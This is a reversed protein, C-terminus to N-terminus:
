PKLCPSPILLLNGQADVLGPGTEENGYYKAYKLGSERRVLNEFHVARIELVQTQPYRNPAWVMRQDLLGRIGDYAHYMEHALSVYAPVPRRVGDVEFRTAAAGPDWIIHGGIGIQRFNTSAPIEASRRGTVFISLATAMPLGSQMRGDDNASFSMWGGYKIVIPFRSKELHRLLTRASPLGELKKVAKDFHKYFRNDLREYPSGDLQYYAGERYVIQENSEYAQIRLSDKKENIIFAEPLVEFEKQGDCVYNPLLQRDNGVFNELEQRTYSRFHDNEFNILEYDAFNSFGVTLATLTVLIASVKYKAQLQAM